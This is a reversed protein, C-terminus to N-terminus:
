YCSVLHPLDELHQSPVCGLGDLRYGYLIWTHYIWRCKTSKITFWIYIIPSYVTRGMSGIEAGDFCHSPIWGRSGIRASGMFGWPLKSLFTWCSRSCFRKFCNRSFMTEIRVMKKIVVPFRQTKLTKKLQHFHVAVVTRRVPLRNKAEKIPFTPGLKWLSVTLNGPHVNHKKKVYIIM